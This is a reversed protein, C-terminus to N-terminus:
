PECELQLQGSRQDSTAYDPQNSGDFRLSTMDDANELTLLGSEPCLGSCRKFTDLTYALESGDVDLNGSGTVEVCGSGPVYRIEYTVDRHVISREGVVSSNSTVFLRRESEGLASRTMELDFVVDRGSATLENSRVSVTLERASVAYGVELEGSLDRLGLPGSCGELVYTVEAGAATASACGPPSFYRDVSGAARAAILEPETPDPPPGVTLFDGGDDAAVQDAADGAVYGGGVDADTAYFEDETFSPDVGFDADPEAEGCGLAFFTPLVFAISVSRNM